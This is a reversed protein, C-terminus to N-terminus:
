ETYNIVSGTDQTDPEYAQQLKENKQFTKLESQVQEMSTELLKINAMESERIQNLIDEAEAEQAPTLELYRRMCKCNLLIDQRNKIMTIAADFDEALIMEKIDSSGNVLQRYQMMLQAFQSDDKM